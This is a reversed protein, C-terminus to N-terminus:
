AGDRGGITFEEDDADEDDADEDDAAGATEDSEDAFTEPFRDKALQHNAIALTMIAVGTLLEQDEASLPSIIEINLKIAM